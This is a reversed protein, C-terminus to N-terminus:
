PCAGPAGYPYPNGKFADVVYSIDLFNVNKDPVAPAMDAVARPPANPLMKFADVCASVDLFNVTGPPVVNGYVATPITTPPDSYAAVNTIPAQSGIGRVVYSAGPRIDLDAVHLM